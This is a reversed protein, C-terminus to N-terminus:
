LITTSVRPIYITTYVPENVKEYNKRHTINKKIWKVVMRLFANSLQIMLMLNLGFMLGVIGGLDAVFSATPYTAEETDITDTDGSLINYVVGYYVLKKWFEGGEM